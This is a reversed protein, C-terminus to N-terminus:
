NSLCLIKGHYSFEDNLTNIIEKEYSASFIIVLDTNAFITQSPAEVCVSAGPIYLGQKVPDTDVIHAVHLKEGLYGFLTHSKGGAGWIVVHSHKASENLITDCLKEKKNLLTPGNIPKKFFIEVHDKGLAPRVCLTQFGTLYLLM